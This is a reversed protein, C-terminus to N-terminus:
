QSFLCNMLKKLEFPMVKYSYLGQSTIFAIKEQDKEDMPIKNYSSFADMFSLLKHGTTSDVLQDIKPLIFSDKLCTKNLNTFNVCMRWKGNNKQVMVMNELLDPYFVQKIFGVELLKEVEEIM